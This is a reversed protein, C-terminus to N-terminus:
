ARRTRRPRDVFAALLLGVAFLVLPAGFRCGSESAPVPTINRVSPLLGRMGDVAPEPNAAVAPDEDPADPQPDEGFSVEVPNVVIPRIVAEPLGAALCATFYIDPNGTEGGGNPDVYNNREDVWAVYVQGDGGLTISPAIQSRDFDTVWVNPGWTAGGDLSRVLLVDPWGVNPEAYAWAVYLGTEGAAMTPATGQWNQGHENLRVNASWSPGGNTSRSFYIDGPDNAERNDYWAAYVGLGDAALVPDGQWGTAVDNVAFNPTWTLGGDRSSSVYVDPDQPDNRRDQWAVHVAGTPDVALAPDGRQEIGAADDNVRVNAGWTAGGDTSQAVYIDPDGNRWDEWAVYAVGDGALAIAPGYSQSVQVFGSVDNAKSPASWSLGGDTSTTVWVDITSSVGGRYVVYITWSPDVSIAPEGQHGASFPSIRVSPDTWSMGGDTSRAFYVSSAGAPEDRNDIWVSYIEGDPGVALAPESQYVMFLDAHVRVQLGECAVDGSARSGGMFATGAVLLFVIAVGVARGGRTWDRFPSTPM